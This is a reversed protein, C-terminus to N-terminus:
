IKIKQYFLFYISTFNCYSELLQDVVKKMSIDPQSLDFFHFSGSTALCFNKLEQVQHLSTFSNMWIIHIKANYPLLEQYNNKVISIFQKIIKKKRLKSYYFFLLTCIDISGDVFVVLQCTNGWKEFEKKCIEIGQYLDSKDELKAEIRYIKITM